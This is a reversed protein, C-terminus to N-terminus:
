QVMSPPLKSANAYANCSVTGAVLSPLSWAPRPFAAAAAIGESIRMRFVGSAPARQCLTASPPRAMRLFARHKPSPLEALVPAVHHTLSDLQVSRPTVEQFSELAREGNGLLMQLASLSLLLGPSHPHQRKAVAMLVTAQLPSAPTQRATSHTHLESRVHAPSVHIGLASAPAACTIRTGWVDAICAISCRFTTLCHMHPALPTLM